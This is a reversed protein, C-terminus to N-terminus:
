TALWTLSSDATWRASTLIWRADDMSRLDDANISCLLGAGRLWAAPTLGMPLREGAGGYADGVETGSTSEVGDVAISESGAGAVGPLALSFGALPDEAHEIRHPMSALWPHMSGTPDQISGDISVGVASMWRRCGGAVDAPTDMFMHMGLSQTETTSCVGMPLQDAHEVSTSPPHQPLKCRSVGCSKLLVAVAHLPSPAVPQYHHAVLRWPREGGQSGAQMNAHMGRARM